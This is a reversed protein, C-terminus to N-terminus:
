SIRQKDRNRRGNLNIELVVGPKSLGTGTGNVDHCQDKKYTEQGRFVSGHM